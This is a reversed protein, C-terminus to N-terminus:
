FGVFVVNVHGVGKLVNPDGTYEALLIFQWGYSPIAEAPVGAFDVDIYYPDVNHVITVIDPNPGDVCTLCNGYLSELRVEAPELLIRSGTEYAGSRLEPISTPCYYEGEYVFPTAGSVCVPPDSTPTAASTYPPAETDTITYAPTDVGPSTSTTATATETVVPSPSSAATETVVPTPSSSPPKKAQGTGATSTPSGPAGSAFATTAILGAIALIVALAALLALARPPRTAHTRPSENAYM